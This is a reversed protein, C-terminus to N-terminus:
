VKRINKKLETYYNIARIYTFILDPRLALGEIDIYKRIQSWDTFVGTIPQIMFIEIPPIRHVNRNNEM